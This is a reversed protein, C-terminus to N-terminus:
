GRLSSKRLEESLCSLKMLNKRMSSRRKPSCNEFWYGRVLKMRCRGDSFYVSVDSERYITRLIKGQPRFEYNGSSPIKSSDPNLSSCFVVLTLILCRRQRLYILTVMVFIMINVELSPFLFSIGACVDVIKQVSRLLFIGITLQWDWLPFSLLFLVPLLLTFLLNLLPSFILLLLSIDNGQFYAIMMQAFFFWLILGLGRLGSYIIGIFLFSYTFSLPSNQFTGFFMDLILASIFGIHQSLLRQNIKILVMRKLASFGPLFFLTCGLIGLFGLQLHHSKIFKMFPFIIASLHFGSPTFVHNLGLQKYKERIIKSLPASRGTLISEWLELLDLDEKAIKSKAESFSSLKIAREAKFYLSLSAVEHTKILALFVFSITIVTFLWTKM